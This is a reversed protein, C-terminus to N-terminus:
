AQRAEIIDALEATIEEHLDEDLEDWWNDFGKRGNLSSIVLESLERPTAPM